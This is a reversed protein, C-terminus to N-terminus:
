SDSLWTDFLSAALKHDNYSKLLTTSLTAQVIDRQKRLPRGDGKAELMQHLSKLWGLLEATAPKKDLRADLKRVKGFLALAEDLWASMGTMGSMRSLVINKLVIEDPFPIHYYVCRRLFADPLHKESNSSLILVPRMNEPAKIKSSGTIGLEPVRFYMNEVENLLDNPFDRPAKDIEDILVVSPREEGADFTDSSAAVWDAVDERKNARLIALGLANYSIYERASAKIEEPQQPSQELHAAHFRGLTDYTYFLDRAISTSKTEFLLPPDRRLKWSVYYAFQTKGTGPEGTLLLPQGLILAVNIADILGRAPLYGRAKKKEDETWAGVFDEVPSDAAPALPDAYELLKM